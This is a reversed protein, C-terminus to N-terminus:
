YWSAGLRRSKPRAALIGAHRVHPAGRGFSGPGMAEEELLAPLKELVEQSLLSSQSTSHM